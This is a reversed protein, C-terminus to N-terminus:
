TRLLAMGVSVAGTGTQARTRSGDVSRALITSASPASSTVPSRWSRSETTRAASPARATNETCIGAKVPVPKSKAPSTVWPALRTSPAFAAPTGCNTCVETVPGTLM